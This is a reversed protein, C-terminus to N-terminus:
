ELIRKVEEIEKILLDLNRFYAEYIKMFQITKREGSTLEKKEVLVSLEIGNEQILYDRIEEFEIIKRYLRGISEFNSKPLQALIAKFDEFESPKQYIRNIMIQVTGSGHNQSLEKQTKILIDSVSNLELSMSAKANSLKRNEQVKFLIYGGVIALTAGLFSSLIIKWFETM